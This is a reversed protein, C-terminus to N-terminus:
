EDAKPRVNIYDMMDYILLHLKNTEQTLALDGTTSLNALSFLYFATYRQALNTDEVTDAFTM